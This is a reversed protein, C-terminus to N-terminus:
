QGEEEGDGLGEGVGALEAFAKRSMGLREWVARIQDVPVQYLGALKDVAHAPYEQCNGREMEEYLTQSIGARQAVEKQMLGLMLRCWRLREPVTHLDEYRRGIGMAFVGFTHVYLLACRGGRGMLYLGGGLTVRVRWVSTM